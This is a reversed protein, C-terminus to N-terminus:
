QLLLLTQASAASLGGWEPQKDYLWVHPVKLGPLSKALQAKVSDVQYSDIFVADFGDYLSADADASIQSLYRAEVAFGASTAIAELNRFKGKPVNSTAIFLVRHRPPAATSRDGETAPRDALLPQAHLSSLGQMCLLLVMGFRIMRSLLVSMM